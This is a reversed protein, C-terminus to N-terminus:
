HGFCVHCQSGCRLLRRLFRIRLSHGPSNLKEYASAYLLSFITGVM